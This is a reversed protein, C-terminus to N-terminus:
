KLHETDLGGNRKIQNSRCIKGRIEFAIHVCKGSWSLTRHYTVTM